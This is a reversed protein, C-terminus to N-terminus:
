GDRTDDKTGRDRRLEEPIGSKSHSPSVELATEPEVPQSSPDGPRDLSGTEDARDGQVSVNEKEDEPILHPYKNRFEDQKEQELDRRVTEQLDDAAKRFEAMGKGLIRALDPLRKPGIVILAVLLIILIEQMGIGLM